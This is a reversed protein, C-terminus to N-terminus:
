ADLPSNSSVEFGRKPIDQRIKTPIEILFHTGEHPSSRVRIFGDHDNIIRKVISLGLGTGERKTSFYPEFVRAKIDEEMGVGNDEM